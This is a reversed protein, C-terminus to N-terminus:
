LFCFVAAWDEDSSNKDRKVTSRVFEQKRFCQCYEIKSVNKKEYFIVNVCLMLAASVSFSLQMMIPVSLISMVLGWVVFCPDALTRRATCVARPHFIM